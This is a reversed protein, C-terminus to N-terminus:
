DPFDGVFNIGPRPYFSPVGGYMRPEELIYGAAGTNRASNIVWVAWTLHVTLM